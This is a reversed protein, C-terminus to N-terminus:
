QVEYSNYRHSFGVTLLKKYYMYPTQMASVVGEVKGFKFDDTEYGILVALSNSYTQGEYILGKVQHIVEIESCIKSKLEEQITKEFMSVPIENGSILKPTEHQSICGISIGCLM